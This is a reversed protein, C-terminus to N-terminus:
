LNNGPLKVKRRSKKRKKGLFVKGTVAFIFLRFGLKFSQRRNLAMKSNYPEDNEDYSVEEAGVWIQKKLNSSEQISCDQLYGDKFTILQFGRSTRSKSLYM